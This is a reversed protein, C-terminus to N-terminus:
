NIQPFNYRSFLVATYKANISVALITKGGYWYHMKTLFEM